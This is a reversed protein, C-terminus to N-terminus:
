GQPVAQRRAEAEGLQGTVWEAVQAVDAPKPRPRGKPPMDGSNIRNMLEEWHAMAKPSDYDLTLTDARFDGKATKPGHCNVCHDAFFPRAIRDLGDDAARAPMAAFASLLIALVSIRNM